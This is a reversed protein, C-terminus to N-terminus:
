ALKESRGHFDILIRTIGARAADDISKDLTLRWSGFPGVSAYVYELGELARAKKLDGYNVSPGLRIAREDFGKEPDYRYFKANYRSGLEVAEHWVVGDDPKPGPFVTGDHRVFREAHQLRLTVDPMGQLGEVFARVRSLRVNAMGYFPHEKSNDTRKGGHAAYTPSDPAKPKRSDLTPPDIDFETWGLLDLQDFLDSHVDRTLVVLAGVPLWSIGDDVFAHEKQPFTGPVKRESGSVVGQIEHTLTTAATCLVAANILGPNGTLASLSQARLLLLGAAQQALMLERMCETRARAELGRLYADVAHLGPSSGAELQAGTSKMQAETRDCAGQVDLLQRIAANYEGVIANRHSIAAIYATLAKSVEDAAGGLTKTFDDCLARLKALSVVLSYSSSPDKFGDKNQELDAKLDQGQLARISTVVYRRNVSEGANNILNETVDLALLGAQSAAQTAMGPGEGLSFAMTSLANLFKGPDLGFTKQTQAALNKLLPELSAAADKRVKDAQELRPLIPNIVDQKIRDAKSKLYAAAGQAEAHALKAQELYEEDDDAAKVYANVCKELSELSKISKDLNASLTVLSLLPAYNPPNGFYDRQSLYNSRAAWAEKALGAVLADKPHAASKADLIRYLWTLPAGIDDTELPQKPPDSRGFWALRTRDLLMQLQTPPVLAAAAVRVEKVAAVSATGLVGREVITKGPNGRDGWSGPKGAPADLTYADLVAKPDKGNVWWPILSVPILTSYFGFAVAAVPSASGQGGKGMDGPAGADGPLGGVGGAGGWTSWTFGSDPESKEWMASVHGGKGGSGGTGGDGGNGGRGGNGGPTALGWGVILHSDADAGPGGSGGKAGPQGQQGAGGDGGYARLGIPVGKLEQCIVTISGGEGGRAGLQGPEGNMQEPPNAPANGGPVDKESKDPFPWWVHISGKSGTAGVKQKTKGSGAPAEGMLLAKPPEAGNLGAVDLLARKNLGEASPSGDGTIAQGRLVRTVILVHQGPLQIHGRITLDDAYIELDHFVKGALIYTDDGQANADSVLTFPEASEIVVKAVTGDDHNVVTRRFVATNPPPVNGTDQAKPPSEVIASM